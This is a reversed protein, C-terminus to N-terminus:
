AGMMSQIQTRCSTHITCVLCVMFAETSPRARQILPFLNEKLEVDRSLAIKSIEFAPYLFFLNHPKKSGLVHHSPEGNHKLDAEFGRIRTFDLKAGSEYKFFLSKSILRVCTLAEMWSLTREIIPSPNAARWPFAMHTNSVLFFTNMTGRVGSVVAHAHQVLKEVAIEGYLEEVYLSQASWCDYSSKWQNKHRRYITPLTLFSLLATPAKSIGLNSRFCIQLCKAKQTLASRASRVCTNSSAGKLKESVM